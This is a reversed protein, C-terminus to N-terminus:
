MEVFRSLLETCALWEAETMPMRDYVREDYITQAVKQVTSDNWTLWAPDITM